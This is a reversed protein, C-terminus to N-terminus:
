KALTPLINKLELVTSFTQINNVKLGKYRQIQLGSALILLDPFDNTLRQFYQDIPKSPLSTISTILTQPRHIEVIKMLDDHPVNQGLYYTRYGAKRVLYHYFLLGIEHLENEPLFLLVRHASTPPLALGDIAVIIKQRVLNSIFHEHAPTINKTQWLVGIKELFPYIMETITKEFGYRLILTNLIKEFHAEDIDIMAVVLQDIHITAENKIESIELVKEHVEKDTMSAIRSIKIGYNNLLSINIIRKLDEDSYFRINTETRSPSILNHRKEWIRITHAKIGSLQELDKISYKGM